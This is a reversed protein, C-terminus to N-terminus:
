EKINTKMYFYYESFEVNKIRFIIYNAFHKNVFMCFCCFVHFLLRIKKFIVFKVPSYSSFEKMLLAAFRVHKYRLALLRNNNDQTM